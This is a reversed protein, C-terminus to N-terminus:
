MMDSRHLAKTGKIKNEIIRQLKGARSELLGNKEEQRRGKQVKKAKVGDGKDEVERQQRRETQKDRQKKLVVQKRRRNECIVM